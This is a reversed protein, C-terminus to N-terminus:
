TVPIINRQTYNVETISAFDFKEMGILKTNFKLVKGFFVNAIKEFIKFNVDALVTVSGIDGVKRTIKKSITETSSLKVWHVEFFSNQLLHEIIDAQYVSEYNGEHLIGIKLNKRLTEM